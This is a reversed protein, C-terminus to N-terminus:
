MALVTITALAQAISTASVQATPTDSVMALAV